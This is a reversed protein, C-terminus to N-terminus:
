VGFVPMIVSLDSNAQVPVDSYVFGTITNDLYYDLTKAGTNTLGTPDLGTYSAADDIFDDCRGNGDCTTDPVWTWDSSTDLVLDYTNSDITFRAM